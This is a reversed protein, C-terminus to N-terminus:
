RGWFYRELELNAMVHVIQLNSSQFMNSNGMRRDHLKSRSFWECEAWILFTWEEQKFSFMWTAWTRHKFREKKKPFDWPEGVAESSFGWRRRPGGASSAPSAAGSVASSFGQLVTWEFRSKPPFFYRWHQLIVDKLRPSFRRFELTKKQSVYIRDLLRSSRMVSHLSNRWVADVWSCFELDATYM